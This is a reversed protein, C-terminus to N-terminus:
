RGRGTYFIKDLQVQSPAVGTRDIPTNIPTRSPNKNHQAIMERTATVTEKDKAKVVFDHAEKLMKDRAIIEKKLAEIRRDNLDVYRKFHNWLRQMEEPMDLKEETRNQMPDLFGPNAKQLQQITNM